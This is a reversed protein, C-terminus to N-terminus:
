ASDKDPEREVPIMEQMPDPDVAEPGIWFARDAKPNPRPRFQIVNTETM